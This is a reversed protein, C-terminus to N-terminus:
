HIEDFCNLSLYYSTTFAMYLEAFCTNANQISIVRLTAIRAFFIVAVSFAELKLIFIYRILNSHSFRLIFNASFFDANLRIALFTQFFEVMRTKCPSAILKFASIAVSRM